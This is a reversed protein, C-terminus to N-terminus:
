RAFNKAGEMLNGVNVQNIDLEIGYGDDKPNSKFNASGLPKLLGKRVSELEEKSSVYGTVSKKWGRTGKNERPEVRWSKREGLLDDLRSIIEDASPTSNLERPKVRDRRFESPPQLNDYHGVKM